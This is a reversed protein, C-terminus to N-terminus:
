IEANTTCLIKQFLFQKKQCKGHFHETFNKTVGVINFIIKQLKQTTSM